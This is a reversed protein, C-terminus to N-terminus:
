PPNLTVEDSSIDFREVDIFEGTINHHTKEKVEIKHLKLTLGYTPNKLTSPQSWM